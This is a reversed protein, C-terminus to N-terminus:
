YQPSLLNELVTDNTTFNFNDNNFRTKKKKMEDPYHEFLGISENEAPDNCNPHTQQNIREIEFMSHFTTGFKTYNLHIDDNKHKTDKNYIDFIIHQAVHDCIVFVNIMAFNIKIEEPHEYLTNYKEIPLNGSSYFVPVSNILKKSVDLYMQEDMYLILKRSNLNTTYWIPEFLRDNTLILLVEGFVINNFELITSVITPILGKLDNYYKMDIIMKGFVLNLYRRINYTVEESSTEKIVTAYGGPLRIVNQNKSKHNNQQQNHHHLNETAAPFVDDTNKSKIRKKTLKKQKKEYKSETKENDNNDDYEDTDTYDTFPNKNNDDDTYNYKEENEQELDEDVFRSGKQSSNKYKDLIVVNDNVNNDDVGDGNSASKNKKSNYVKAFSKTKKTKPKIIKEMLKSQQENNKDANKEKPM